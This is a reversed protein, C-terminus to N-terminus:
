ALGGLYVISFIGIWVIDLFHWFLGLKLLRSKVLDSLGLTRIQILMILLWLCGSAVHLGHLPVLGFFASLFGSRSPGADAAFMAAFDRAEFSLFALGLLLTLALWFTLEARSRHHRLALSALGFSLSSVLLLMTQILASTLDFLEKPGPGGAQGMPNQMTVYLAFMLGFIILDSMLFIWFGFAGIEAKDHAAGHHEGLNLGPHITDHKSM